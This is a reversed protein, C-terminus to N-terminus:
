GCALGVTGSLACGAAALSPDVGLQAAMAVALGTTYRHLKFNFAFNSLPEDYKLKLQQTGPAKLTPKIPDVQVAEGHHHV